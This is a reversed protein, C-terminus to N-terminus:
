NTGTTRIAVSHGTSALRPVPARGVKVLLTGGQFHDEADATDNGSHDDAAGPSNWVGAIPVSGPDVKDSFLLPNSRVRRQKDVYARVVQAAIPAAKDGHEGGGFFVVVVIEPNRRPTVGAFWGNGKYEKAM